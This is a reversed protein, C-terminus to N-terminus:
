MDTTMTEFYVSFEFIVYEGVTKSKYVYTTTSEMGMLLGFYVTNIGKALRADNHCVIRSCYWGSNVCIVGLIM